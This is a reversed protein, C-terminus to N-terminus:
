KRFRMVSRDSKWRMEPAFVLGTLDDGPNALIGSQAELTFGAAQLDRIIQAPDVRHLTKGMAAADSGAAANHDIIGLVGGPKLQGHIDALFKKVDIQPWGNEKDEYYIDHMGLIFIAADYQRTSEGLKEPETILSDVNPLRNNELRTAVQAKVFNDWPNNNYLTVKGTEGVLYSLIETYYGGGGFIDIVAMGPEIQFFTLVEGPKRMPDLERDADPRAPNEVAATVLDSLKVSTSNSACGLISSLIGGLILFCFIRNM